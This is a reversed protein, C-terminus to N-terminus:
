IEGDDGLNCCVGYEACIDDHGNKSIVFINTGEPVRPNHEIYGDTLTICIRPSINNEGMYDAVCSFTTGGSSHAKYKQLDQATERTIEKDDAPDIYTSWFLVRAKVQEYATCIGCVESMFDKYEQDGISGSVDVTIVVELNEKLSSPQYIGTACWKRNPRANTYNFPLERTIYMNLLDKWNLKPTLIGDCIRELAGGLKGRTKAYTAANTFVQKWKQGNAQTSGVGNADGTSNGLDDEDGELHKDMSGYNEKVKKAEKELLEYVKEAPCDKVNITLNAKDLRMTGDQEPLLVGKPLHMGTSTLIYNICIDTAINWLEHDRHKQRDFTLTAVHMAEHALVSMLEDLTLENVFDPNWYLRGFKSVGMTPIREKDRCETSMMSLIIRAFFPHSKNLFAKGKIIREHPKLDEYRVLAM